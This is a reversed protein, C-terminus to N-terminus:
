GDFSSNRIEGDSYRIVSHSQETANEFRKLVRGFDRDDSSDEQNNESEEFARLMNESALAIVM